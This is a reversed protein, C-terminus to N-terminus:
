KAFCASVAQPDIVLWAGANRLRALGDHENLQVVLLSSLATTRVLAADASAAALMVQQTSWWPPFAAAVIDRGHRVQLSLAAVGVFSAILLAAANLWARSPSPITAGSMMVDSSLHISIVEPLRHNSVICFDPKPRSFKAEGGRV